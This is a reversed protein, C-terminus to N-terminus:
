NTPFIGVDTARWERTGVQQFPVIAVFSRDPSASYCVHSANAVDLGLLTEEDFRQCETFSNVFVRGAENGLTRQMVRDVAEPLMLRTLRERQGDSYASAIQVAADVLRPDDIERAMLKVGNWDVRVVHRRVDPEEPDAGENSEYALEVGGDKYIFELLTEPSGLMITSVEIAAVARDPARFFVFARDMLDGAVCDVVVAAHQRGEDDAWRVFAPEWRGDVEVDALSLGADIDERDGVLGDLLKGAPLDCLEPIWASKVAAITIPQEPPPTATIVSPSPTVSGSCATLALGAALLALRSVVQYAKM